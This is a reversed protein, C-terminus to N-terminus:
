GYIGSISNRAYNFTLDHTAISEFEFFNKTLCFHLSSMAKLEGSTIRSTQSRYVTAAAAAFLRLTSCKNPCAQPLGVSGPSCQACTHTHKSAQKSAAM